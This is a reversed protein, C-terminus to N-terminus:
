MEKLITGRHSYVSRDAVTFINSVNESVMQSLRKLEEKTNKINDTADCFRRGKLASRLRPFLYFDAPALDPSYQPHELTTVNNTSPFYKVLVSRHAPANDHVLFLSNTGWKEPCKRRVAFMLSEPHRHIKKNVNTIGTFKVLLNPTCKSSSRISLQWPFLSTKILIHKHRNWQALQSTVPPPHLSAHVPYELKGCKRRGVMSVFEYQCHCSAPCTVHTPTSHVAWQTM